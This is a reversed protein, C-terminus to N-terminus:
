RYYDLWPWEAEDVSSAKVVVALTRREVAVIWQGKTDIRPDM